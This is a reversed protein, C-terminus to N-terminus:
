LYKQLFEPEDPGALTYIKDGEAWSVSLLDDVHAVQPKQEPADKFASRDTVFLFLMQKDGRDFCVMSVPHGRWKLVGGGSLQRSKLGSPVVYDAPAGGAALLSRLQTMDSTQVDMHYERVASAVMRFQYNAFRDNRQPERFLLFGGAVMMMAAAMAWRAAPRNWFPLPVVKRSALLRAKLDAPPEMRRLSRQMAQQFNCHQRFWAALEADNEVERLAEAIEPDFADASGPRYLL